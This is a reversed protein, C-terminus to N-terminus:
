KQQTESIVAQQILTWYQGPKTPNALETVAKNESFALAEGSAKNLLRYGRDTKELRWRQTDAESDWDLFVKSEQAAVPFAANLKILRYVNGGLHYFWILNEISERAPKLIVPAPARRSQEAGLVQGNANQVLYAGDPILGGAVTSPQGQLWERVRRYYADRSLSGDKDRAQWGKEAAATDAVLWANREHVDDFSGVILYRPNNKRAIIFGYDLWSLHRRWEETTTRPSGFKVSGTVFMANTSAVPGVQPELQWGWKDKDSDEGSTWVTSFKSRYEGNVAVSNTYGERTTYLVVVPKDDKTLYSKGLPSDPAAYTEWIKRCDREMTKGGQPNFAIAFKMDNDQCFKQVRKAQWEWRFGNTFDVLIANIGADRIAQCYADIHKEDNWNISQWAGDVLVKCGHYDSPKWWSETAGNWIMIWTGYITPRRYFSDRRSQHDRSILPMGYHVAEKQAELEAHLKGAMESQAVLNTTEYPDGALDFVETWEPHGPYTILKANTTRVGVLTPVSGEERFYEALFSQRWNPPHEGAALPKWSVGQMEKPVPVGALDLFTPALDINLVMEDVVTGKGFRRPYRAIMPIRLSEEYIHRKDGMGHEGLFYGNDSTYVVVTDDAIGLEDLAGLLRGLNEDAGTVHRMYDLHMANDALGRSKNEPNQYSPRAAANPAPRSTEGAYLSRLRVPLNTGGRPTHPSKFGVVMLFPRDRNQKMWDIAFETSVDDVWGTTPKSVGNIEFPHDFYRGQGIFSASYDFGPRQGRQNGMHWKGIYATRYGAARLQTAFTVSDAPFPTHNNIIGNLHNYRGTLFTARSPSCLSLTVFANRFRVGEAALRDMNPTTLWPFRASQGQERQVIGMADWRQDDTYVFLFNPKRDAADGTAACVLAATILLFQKMMTECNM